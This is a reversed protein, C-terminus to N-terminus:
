ENIMRIGIGKRKNLEQKWLPHTRGYMWEFLPSAILTNIIAMLVLMTFLTPTIINEQLGINLMILEIMGRTNMLIGVILSNSWPEGTIRAAFTAAGAKSLVSVLIILGTILLLLPTNVLGIQTNLGSYVFFIPLLVSVTLPELQKRLEDALFGRPMAIGMVFAGFVQYIGIVTTFWSCLLLILLVIILTQKTLQNTREVTSSILGLGRRGITLMTLVYLTGGGIALLAILISSKVSALVIALLCWSVVDDMSAVVTVLTGLHTTTIQYEQLIRALVPFATISMASGLFLAAMWPTIGIGFLHPTQFLVPTISVAVIFPIAISSGALLSISKSRGRLMKTEFELGVLFMYITLGIESLAYLISMSPHVISVQAKGVTIVAVTPFLWQGVAPALLGLLSPGLIIGTVMECVVQSQGLRQGALGVLRCVGLIAVLQLFLRLILDYLSM